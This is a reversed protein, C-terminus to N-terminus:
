PQGFTMRFDRLSFSLVPHRQALFALPGNPDADFTARSLGVRARARVPTVKASGGLRQVVHFSFPVLGPMSVRPVVAGAAITGHDDSALFTGGGRAFTALQKPIAWLARGGDRSAASDVWIHTITPLLRAGRRVLLTSMLEDYALVGGPLYSVWATGVVGYRGLRMPRWGPPVEVPVDDIRVLFISTHLHGRLRWPEPPYAGTM